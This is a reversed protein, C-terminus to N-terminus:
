PEADFQGMLEAPTCIITPEYGAARCVRDIQWRIQANAIHRCNWTVLYEIGHVVAFAIHAADAAAKKPVIGANLLSVTLSEAEDTADLLQVKALFALRRAAVTPDGAGAESVVLQSAFLDFECEATQWWEATMQQNALVIVDRSPNAALYSIVTTELYVKPKM